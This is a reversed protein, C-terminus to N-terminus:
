LLSLGVKHTLEFTLRALIVVLLCDLVSSDHFSDTRLITSVGASQLQPSSPYDIYLRFDYRSSYRSWKSGM